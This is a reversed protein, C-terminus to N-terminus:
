SVQPAVTSLGQLFIKKKLEADFVPAITPHFRSFVELVSWGLIKQFSSIFWGTNVNLVPEPGEPCTWSRWSLDLLELLTDLVDPLLELVM